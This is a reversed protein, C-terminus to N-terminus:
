HVTKASVCMCVCVRQHSTGCVVGGLWDLSLETAYLSSLSWSLLSNAIVGGTRSKYGQCNQQIFSIEFYFTIVLAEFPDEQESTLSTVQLVTFQLDECLTNSYKQM